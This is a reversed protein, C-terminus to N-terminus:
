GSNAAAQILGIASKSTVNAQALVSTGANMLINYKTLDSTAEAVDTDRVRSNAAALNEVGIAINNITSQLRNQMAGFDARIRLSQFLRKIL